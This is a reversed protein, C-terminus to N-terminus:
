RVLAMRRTQVFVQGSGTSSDGTGGKVPDAVRLQYIFTGSAVNQGQENRGDWTIAYRGAQQRQDVLTRVRRGLMDYIVLKVEVQQPLEYKIITSPNFPNPYNQSLSFETPITGTEEVSVPVDISFRRKESFAGWGAVNEARVRWWYTQKNNLELVVRMTDAATLTSDKVSNAMSSDTALEFWYRSIAPQSRQWTFKVNGSPLIAAQTPSLLVVQSPLAITTFHRIESYASTGGFNKASVRWYYTTNNALPGVERSTTAINARDFVTTSFDSNTSVQLRYTEAGTSINWDLTLTTSQNVAGNVPATLTPAAPSSVITSEISRFVGGGNTGAFLYGERNIALAQVGTNTLGANIQSWTDGNDVSRFVGSGFTAAFIHGQSNITLVQVNTSMLGTNIPSWHDGNDSSRFVGGGTGAFIVGASNIALANVCLNTLSTNILSWTDGNNTSRFVGNGSTGVFIHGDRNIALAQVFLNILGINLRRWSNGNDASRYVDRDGGAFIHGLNNIALAYFEDEPLGTNIASWINGNDASHFIGNGDTGAFVSGLTDPNIALAEIDTSVLGNNIKSWTDGNDTSRFMGDVLTGAFLHGNSYIALAWVFGFPFGINLQVWSGGNNTSRFVGGDTGAFIHGDLNIVLTRIRTGILGTNIPSWTNGDDISRFVGGGETGAFIHGDNNIALAFIYTNTLSNNVQSWSEGNDTSRLVGIGTGAFIVGNSKIAFARVDADAFGTNIPSWNEGNDRSRFMRSGFCCTGAFVDGTVSNITLAQVNPNTLGRNVPHWSQGNDTSRFVGGAGAFIHGASNTALANAGSLGTNKWSEGNDISRFVGGGATGAFVHNQSNIAVAYV